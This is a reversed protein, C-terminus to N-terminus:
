WGVAEAVLTQAAVAVGTVIEALSANAGVNSGTTTALAAGTVSLTISTGSVGAAQSIIQYGRMTNNDRDYKWVIGSSANEDFVTLYDLNRRMGFSGFAPMPVGSAPYTLAGDGFVIKTRNRRTSGAITQREVTLTVDTSALATM